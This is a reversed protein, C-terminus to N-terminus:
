LTWNKMHTKILYFGSKTIYISKQPHGKKNKYCCVLSPYNKTLLNHHKSSVCQFYIVFVWVPMYMICIRVCLTRLIHVWNAGSIECIAICLWMIKVCVSHINCEFIMTYNEFGFRVHSNEHHAKEFMRRSNSPFTLTYASRMWKRGRKKGKRKQTNQKNLPIFVIDNSLIYNIAVLTDLFLMIDKSGTQKQGWWLIRENLQNLQCFM